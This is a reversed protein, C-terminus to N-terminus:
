WGGYSSVKYICKDDMAVVRHVLKTYASIM